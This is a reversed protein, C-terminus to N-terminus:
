AADRRLEVDSRSVLWVRGVQRAGIQRSRALQRVRSETVRLIAAATATDIESSSPPPIETSLDEATRDVSSRWTSWQRSAARIQAWTTVVEALRAPDLKGEEVLARAAVLRSPLREALLKEIIFAAYGAVYAGLPPGAHQEGTV